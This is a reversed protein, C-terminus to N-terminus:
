EVRSHLIGNKNLKNVAEEFLKQGEKTLEGTSPDINAEYVELTKPEYPTDGLKKAGLLFKVKEKEAEVKESMDSIVKKPDFVGNNKDAAAQQSELIEMEQVVGAFYNDITLQMDPNQEKTSLFISYTKTKYNQTEPNHGCAFGKDLEGFKITTKKTFVAIKKYQESDKGYIKEAKELLDKEFLQEEKPSCKGDKNLDYNARIPNIENVM